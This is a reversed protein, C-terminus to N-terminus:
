SLGRKPRLRNSPMKTNNDSKQWAVALLSRHIGRRGDERLDHVKQREMLKSFANTTVPAVVLDLAEGTEILEETQGESLQRIAFTEAIDLGAKSGHLASKIM